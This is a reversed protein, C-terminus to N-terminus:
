HRLRGQRDPGVARPPCRAARAQLRHRFLEMPSELSSTAISSVVGAVLAILLGGEAGGASAAAAAGSGPGAGGRGSPAEPAAGGAPAGPPPGDRDRWRERADGGGCAARAGFDDHGRGRGGRPAESGSRGPARAWAGSGCSGALAAALPPAPRSHAGAGDEQAREAGRAGARLRRRGRAARAAVRCGLRLRPSPVHGCAGQPREQM